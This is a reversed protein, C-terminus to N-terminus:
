AALPSVHKLDMRSLKFQTLAEDLAAAYNAHKDVRIVVSKPIRLYCIIEIDTSSPLRGGIASWHGLGDEFGHALPLGIREAIEEISLSLM